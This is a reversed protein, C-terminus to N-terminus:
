PVLPSDSIHLGCEKLDKQEWWWRGAREPEGPRSARTCPACGISAFGKAHLSNTPIANETVFALVAQRTWDFLPNIKLLSRKADLESM